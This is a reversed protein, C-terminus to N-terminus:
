IALRQILGGALLDGPAKQGANSFLQWGGHTKSLFTDIPIAPTAEGKRLGAM